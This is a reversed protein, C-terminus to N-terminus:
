MSEFVSITLGALDMVEGGVAPRLPNVMAGGFWRMRPSIPLYFAEVADELFLGGFRELVGRVFLNALVELLQLYVPIVVFTM